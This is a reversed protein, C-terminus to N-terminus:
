GFNTTLAMLWFYKKSALFDEFESKIKNKESLGYDANADADTDAAVSYADRM